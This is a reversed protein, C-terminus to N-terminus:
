RVYFDLALPSFKNPNIDDSFTYTDRRNDLGNALYRRQRLDEYVELTYWPVPVEYYDLMHGESFRWLQGKKDYNDAVALQWTDEDVYFVRRSYLHGRKLPDRTTPNRTASRVTGEVVWVRHLEYRALEPNIHHKQLIDEYELKDSHLRYANYPIYLERKGLLKWEFLAPSGNFMDLEDQFRLGDSLPGPNDFGSFPQRLVRRLNPNYQWSERQQKTYDSSELLLQGFGSQFGPALIKQKFAISLTPYKRKIPLTNPDGYFYAIEEQFLVVRYNGLLRTLAAQGNIRSVRIGRWRLTHNWLVEVGQQPIPFPSTINANRVGGQGATILEAQTANAKIAAYVFEPYAASRRTPYVNMYWSEPYERLLAQQGESLKDAYREVNAANITFLVPDDPYPDAHHDGAEFGPIPEGLGGTWPPITGEANGAREAGVPTLEPGGLRAAQQASVGALAVATSLALAAASLISLSLVSSMIM